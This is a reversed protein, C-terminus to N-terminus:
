YSLWRRIREYIKNEEILNLIADADGCALEWKDEKVDAALEEIIREIIKKNDNMALEIQKVLARKETNTKM